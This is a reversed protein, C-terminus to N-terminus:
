RDCDVLADRVVEPLEGRDHRERMADLREHEVLLNTRKMAAYTRLVGELGGLLVRERDGALTPNELVFRAMSIQMQVLLEQSGLKKSLLLDHLLARCPEVTLEPEYRLLTLVKRRNKVAKKSLPEEELKTALKLIEKRRKEVQKSQGALAPTHAVLFLGCVIAIAIRHASNM